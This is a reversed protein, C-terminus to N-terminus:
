YQPAVAQIQDELSGPEYISNYRQHFEQERLQWNQQELQRNQEEM